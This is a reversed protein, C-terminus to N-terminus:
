GGQELQLLYRNYANLTDTLVPADNKLLKQISFQLAELMAAEISRHAKARLAEIGPYDRDASILDALYVIEEIRTMNGRGTTHYRVADIIQTNLVSLERQIYIAAAFGHWVPFSTLFIPDKLIDSDSLLNLMEERTQEKCCDHLLGALYAMDGNEGYTQALRLAESAVNLSHTFRERSLVGRLWMTLQDLDVLLKPMRGYLGNQIIYREVLPPLNESANKLARLDSSSVVVPEVEVVETRAGLANLRDRQAVLKEHEGTERPIAAIQALRMIEHACRWEEVTYFMDSGVLLILEDQPREVSLLRLTDVTYSKGGRVIEINSVTVKPNDQVALRCMALRHQSDIVNDSEKHPPVATPILLLEDLDLADILHAILSLHGNHIPNFTGGFIGTKM